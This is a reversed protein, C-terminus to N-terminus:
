EAEAVLGARLYGALARLAVAEAKRGVREYGDARKDVARALPALLEADRAQDRTPTVEAREATRQARGRDRHDIVNDAKAAAWEAAYSATEKGLQDVDGDGHEDTGVHKGAQEMVLSTLDDPIVRCLKVFAALPMMTDRRYTRLTVAPIGTEAELRNATLGHDREALRLMAEQAAIVLQDTQSRFGM